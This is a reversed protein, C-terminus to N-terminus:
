VARGGFDAYLWNQYNLPTVAAPPWLLNIFNTHFEQSNQTCYNSTFGRMSKKIKSVASFFIRILRLHRDTWCHNLEFDKWKDPSRIRWQVTRQGDYLNIPTLSSNVAKDYCSHHSVAAAKLQRCSRSGGCLNSLTLHLPFGLVRAVM